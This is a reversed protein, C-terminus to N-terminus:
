PPVVDFVMIIVFIYHHHNKSCGGDDRESPFLSWRKPSAPAWTPWERIWCRRGSRPSRPLLSDKSDYQDQWDQRGGRLTSATYGDNFKSDVEWNSYLQFKYKLCVLINSPLCIDSTRNISFNSFEFTLSIETNRTNSDIAEFSLSSVVRFSLCHTMLELSCILILPIHVNYMCVKSPCTGGFFLM